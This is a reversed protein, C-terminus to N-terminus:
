QETDSSFTIRDMDLDFTFTLPKQMLYVDFTQTTDFAGPVDIFPIHLEGTSPEFTAHTSDSTEINCSSPDAICAQRGQEYAADIEAQTCQGPPPPVEGGFLEVIESESLARTYIRIDDLVGNFPSYNSHGEGVGGFELDYNNNNFSSYSDSMQVDLVGNIYVKMFHNRRDVVATYFIWEGLQVANSNLVHQDSGDGASGLHFNQQENLWVSYERNRCCSGGKQGKHIIPSWENTTSNVKIWFAISLQDTPNLSESSLVIMRDDGDFYYASNPNGFRDETLTPQNVSAHNGNGSEDHANGNFSWYGALGDNIDALATSANWLSLFIILAINALKKM